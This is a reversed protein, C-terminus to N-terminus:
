LMLKMLTLTAWGYVLGLLIGALIDTPYHMGNRLRSWSLLLVMVICFPLLFTYFYSLVVLGGVMSALHSSPFSSDSFKRGIPRIEQPYAKYPRVRVLKFIRAGFKLIGESVAFHLLFVAVLGLSIFAGVILDRYIIVSVVTVWFIVLFTISSILASVADLFKSKHQNLLIVIKKELEHMSKM